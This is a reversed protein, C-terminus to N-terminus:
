MTIVHSSFTEVVPVGQPMRDLGVLAEGPPMALGVRDAHDKGGLQRM